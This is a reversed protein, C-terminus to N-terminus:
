HGQWLIWLLGFFDWFSFTEDYYSIRRLLQHSWFSHRHIIHLSPVFSHRILTGCDRERGTLSATTLSTSIPLLLLCASTAYQRASDFPNISIGLAFQGVSNFPIDFNQSCIFMVDPIGFPNSLSKDSVVYM